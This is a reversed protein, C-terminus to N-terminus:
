AWGRGSTSLVPQSASNDPAEGDNSAALTFNPVRKRQSDPASTKRSLEKRPSDPASSKMSLEKRPSDPGGSKMSLEKRQSAPASDVHVLTSKMDSGKKEKEGGIYSPQFSYNRFSLIVPFTVSFHFFFSLCIMSSYVETVSFARNGIVIKLIKIILDVVAALSEFSAERLIGASDASMYSTTRSRLLCAWLNVVTSLYFGVMCIQVALTVTPVVSLPLFLMLLCCTVALVTMVVLALKLYRVGKPGSDVTQRFSSRTRLPAQSDLTKPPSAKSVYKRGEPKKSARPGVCCFPSAGTFLRAEQLKHTWAFGLHTKIGKAADKEIREKIEDLAWNNAALVLTFHM